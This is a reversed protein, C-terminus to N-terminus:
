GVACCPGTVSRTGFSSRGSRPLAEVLPRDLCLHRDRRGSTWGFCTAKRPRRSPTAPDGCRRWGSWASRVGVAPELAWQSGPRLSTVSLWHSHRKRTWQNGPRLSTMSLWHCHRKRTEDLFLLKTESKEHSYRTNRLLSIFFFAVVMLDFKHYRRPITYQSKFSGNTILAGVPQRATIVDHLALSIGRERKTSLFSSQNVLRFIPHKKTAINFFTVDM